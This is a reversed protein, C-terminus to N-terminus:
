FSRIFLHKDSTSVNLINRPDYKQIPTKLKIYSSNIECFSFVFNLAEYWLHSEFWKAHFWKSVSYIEWWIAFLYRQTLQSQKVQNPDHITNRIADIQYAHCSMLLVKRRSRARSFYNSICYRLRIAIICSSHSDRSSKIIVLNSLDNKSFNHDIIVHDRCLHFYVVKTKDTMLTHYLITPRLWSSYSYSYLKLRSALCWKLLMVNFYSGAWRHDNEMYKRMCIMDWIQFSNVSM